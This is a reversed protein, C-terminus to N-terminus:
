NPRRLVDDHLRKGFINKLEETAEQNSGFTEHSWWNTACQGEDQADSLYVKIRPIGNGNNTWHVRGAEKYNEFTDKSGYWVENLIKGKPTIIEYKTGGRGNAAKWPNTAWPGKPDNDPNSFTGTLGVKGVGYKKLAEANKSYCLIHEAVLGILKTKDNPQNHRRRWHIHGQFNEARFIEDCLMKLQAMEHDDISIFIVGEFKLLKKAIRLRKSMFSLWQSHKYADEPGVLKDNYRFDDEKGTNYPPDIYIVDIKGEHTYSLATLAELNDGEILIHNPADPSDSLIARSKVEELVPLHDRLREEVDEPKNEWVLGYKKEKNLLELLASKEENTLRELTQIKHKLATKDM